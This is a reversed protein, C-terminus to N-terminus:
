KVFTALNMQRVAKHIRVVSQRLRLRKASRDPVVGCYRKATHVTSESPNKFNGFSITTSMGYWLVNCYVWLVVLLCLLWILVVDIGYLCMLNWFSCMFGFITLVDFM